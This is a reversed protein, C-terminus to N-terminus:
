LSPKSSLRLLSAAVAKQPLFPWGWLAGPGGQSPVRSVDIRHAAPLSFSPRLGHPGTPCRGPTSRAPGRGLVGKPLEERGEPSCPGDRGVSAEAGRGSRRAGRPCEAVLFSGRDKVAAPGKGTGVMIAIATPPACASLSPFSPLSPCPAGVSPPPVPLDERCCQSHLALCRGGARQTRSM